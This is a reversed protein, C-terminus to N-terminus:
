EARDALQLFVNKLKGQSCPLYVFTQDKFFYDDKYLCETGRELQMNEVKRTALCGVNPM